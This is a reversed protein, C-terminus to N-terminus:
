VSLRKHKKSNLTCFSIPPRTHILAEGLLIEDRPQAFYVKGRLLLALSSENLQRLVTSWGQRDFSGSRRPSSRRSGCVTRLVNTVTEQKTAKIDHVLFAARMWTISM